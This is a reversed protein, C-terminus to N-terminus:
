NDVHRVSHFHGTSRTLKDAFEEATDLDYFSTVVFDISTDIVDYHIHM